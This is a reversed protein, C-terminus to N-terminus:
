RRAGLHILRRAFPQFGQLARLAAGGKNCTVCVHVLHAGSVGPIHRPLVNQAQAQGFSLNGREHFGGLLPRLANDAGFVNSSHFM